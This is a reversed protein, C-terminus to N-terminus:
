QILWQALKGEWSTKCYQCIKHYVLEPVGAQSEDLLTKALLSQPVIEKKVADNLWGTLQEYSFKSTPELCLPFNPHEPANFYWAFSLGSKCVKGKNDVLFMVLYTEEHNARAVIPQWFEQILDPLFGAYTSHAESFIFILNQTQLCEFIKDMIQEPSMVPIHFYLAIKNWLEPVESMRALSIPIRRGNKLEPLKRFLRTLLIRQGYREDDGHILFAATRRRKEQWKIAKIVNNEQHKFNIEIISNFLKQQDIHTKSQEVEPINRYEQVQNRYEQVKSLLDDFKRRRADGEPITVKLAKVFVPFIWNNKENEEKLVIVLISEVLKHSTERDKILFSLHRLRDIPRCLNRIGGADNNAFYDCELFVDHCLEYLELSVM